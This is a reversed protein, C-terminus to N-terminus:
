KRVAYDASQLCPDTCLYLPGYYKGASILHATYLIFITVWEFPLQFQKFTLQALTVATSGINGILDSNFFIANEYLTYTPLKVSLKM